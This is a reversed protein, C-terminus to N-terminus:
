ARGCGHGRNCTRACPFFGVTLARTRTRAHAHTNPHHHHHTHTHPPPASLSVCVTTFSSTRRHILERHRQAHTRTRARFLVGPTRVVMGPRCPCRRARLCPLTDAVYRAFFDPYMLPFVIMEKLSKVHHSLGGINEFSVSKDINMPEISDGKSGKMREKIIDADEGQPANMPQIRERAHRMSKSRRDQFHREDQIDSWEDETTSGGLEFKAACM